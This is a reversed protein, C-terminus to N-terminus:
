RFRPSLPPLPTVSFLRNRPEEDEWDTPDELLERTLEPSLVVLRTTGRSLVPGVPPNAQFVGFRLGLKSLDGQNSVGPLVVKVQDGLEYRMALLITVEGDEGVFPRWWACFAKQVERWRQRKEPQRRGRLYDRAQTQVRSILSARAAVSEGGEGTRAEFTQTAKWLRVISQRFAQAAASDEKLDADALRTLDEILDAWLVELEAKVARLLQARSVNGNGDQSAVIAM